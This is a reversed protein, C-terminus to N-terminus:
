PCSSGGQPQPYAASPCYSPPLPVSPRSARCFVQTLQPSPPPVHRSPPLVSSEPFPRARPGSCTRQPLLPGRLRHACGRRSSPLLYLSASTFLHASLCLLLTVSEFRGSIAALRRPSERLVPHALTPSETLPIPCDLADYADTSQFTELSHNSQCIFSPFHATSSDAPLFTSFIM